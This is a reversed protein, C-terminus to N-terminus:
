PVTPPPPPPPYQGPQNYQEPQQHQGPYPYGGQPQPPYNQPPYGPQPYGGQPQPPYGPAPPYGQSMGPYMAEAYQPRPARGRGALGGLAGIGAGIGIAVLLGIVAGVIGIAVVASQVQQATLPTGGSTQTKDAISQFSSTPIMVLRVIGAVLGVVGGIAGAVLGALSGTGAKGTQSAALMGAVFYLALGVLFFLCGVGILGNSLSAQGSTTSFAATDSGSTAAIVSNIINLVAIIGGFLLGYRMVPNGQQAPQM